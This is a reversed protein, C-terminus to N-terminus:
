SSVFAARARVALHPRSLSMVVARPTAVDTHTVPMSAQEIAAHPLTDPFPVSSARAGTSAFTATSVANSEGALRSAPARSASQSDSADISTPTGSATVSPVASEGDGVAVVIETEGRVRVGVKEVLM